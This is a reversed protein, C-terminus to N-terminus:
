ITLSRSWDQWHDTLTQKTRDTFASSQADLRARVAPLLAERTPRDMGYADCFLRLREAQRDPPYGMAVCDAPAYLPVFSRVAYGLDWVATTPTAFDWDIFARPKGDRYITNAPGLDNHCVLPGPPAYPDPRWRADPPPQFGAAARHLERIRGAVEALAEDDYCRATRGDSGHVYTLIERQGSEEVGIVRPAATFGVAELHRLLAHVSRTWPRVPRRVTNGVRSVPGSDHGGALLEETM